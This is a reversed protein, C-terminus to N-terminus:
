WGLLFGELIYKVDIFRSVVVCENIEYLIKIYEMFFVILLRGMFYYRRSIIVFLNSVM